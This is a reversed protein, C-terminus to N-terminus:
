LQVVQQQQHPHSSVQVLSVMMNLVALTLPYRAQPCETGAEISGLMGPHLGRGSFLLIICFLILLLQSTCAQM